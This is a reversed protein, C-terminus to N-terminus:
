GEDGTLAYHLEQGLHLIETAPCTIFLVWKGHQRGVWSDGNMLTTTLAEAEDHDKCVVQLELIRPTSM